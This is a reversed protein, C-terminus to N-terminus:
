GNIISVKLDSSEGYKVARFEGNPLYVQLMTRISAVRDLKTARPLPPAPPEPNSDPMKSRSLEQGKRLVPSNKVM